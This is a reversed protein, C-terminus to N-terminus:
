GPKKIEWTVSQSAQLAPVLLGEIKAVAEKSNLVKGPVRQTGPLICGETDDPTNGSHVLIGQYGPVNLFRLTWQNRSPSLAWVVNYTGYPIATNGKIKWKSVTAPDGDGRVPDECVFFTYLPTTSGDAFISATSLACAPSLLDRIQTVKM